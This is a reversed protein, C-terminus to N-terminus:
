SNLQVKIKKQIDKDKQEGLYCLLKVYHRITIKIIIDIAKLM